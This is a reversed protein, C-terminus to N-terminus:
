VLDVVEVVELVRAAVRLEIGPDIRLDPYARNASRL